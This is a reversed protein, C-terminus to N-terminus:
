SVCSYRISRRSTNLLYIYVKDYFYVYCGLQSIFPFMGLKEEMMTDCLSELWSYPQHTFGLNNCFSGNEDLINKLSVLPSKARRANEIDIGILM